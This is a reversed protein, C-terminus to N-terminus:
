LLMKEGNFIKLLMALVLINYQLNLKETKMINWQDGHRSKQWCWVAQAM